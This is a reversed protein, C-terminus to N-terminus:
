DQGMLVRAVTRVSQDPDKTGKELARLAGPTGIGALARFAAIRIDAPAKSFLGGLARKEITRVVGPDGIQGLARLCEVQVEPDEDMLVETLPKVSRTSKLVGLARCTAARVSPDGDALMGTILLEADIGGVKALSLVSEKRVRADDNALTGTLYGIADEGGLEGLLAVGNRVVFWRPDEVMRQARKVGHPGMSGMADMFARRQGRDRAEGLADALALAGERGVRTLLDTLRAREAEDRTAGLQAVFQSAVAPTVFERGLEVADWDPPRDEHPELLAQALEALAVANRSASLEEAHGRLRVENMSRDADPEALYEQVEKMLQDPLGSGPVVQDQSEAPSVDEERAGWEEFLDVVGGVMGPLASQVQDFSIGVQGELGRFRASPLPGAEEPMSTLRQLFDTLVEPAMVEQLRLERIGADQLARRFADLPGDGDSITDGRVSLGGEEVTATTWGTEGHITRVRDVAELFRPEDEEPGGITSFAQALAALLEQPSAM